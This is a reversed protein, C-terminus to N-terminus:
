VGKLQGRYGGRCVSILIVKDSLNDRVRALEKNVFKLENQIYNEQTSSISTPNSIRSMMESSADSDPSGGSLHQDPSVRFVAAKGPSVSSVIKASTLSSDSESGRLSSTKTVNGVSQHQAEVLNSNWSPLRRLAGASHVEHFVNENSESTDSFRVRSKPKVPLTYLITVGLYIMKYVVKHLM